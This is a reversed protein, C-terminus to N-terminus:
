VPIEDRVAGALRFKANFAVTIREREGGYVRVEHLLWSPFLVLQGAKLKFERPGYNYGGGMRVVSMDMFMTSTASPNIFTLVGAAADDTLADGPDVCYVGSWSHLAHNHLPFYGGRRTIHFWSEAAIHLNQLMEPPYANLEGITRYLQRYCFDRLQQVAADDAGFLQFDSEFLRDSRNVLPQRNAYTDGAAERELFLERLRANMAEPAPHTAMAFPVAFVPEIVFKADQQDTM